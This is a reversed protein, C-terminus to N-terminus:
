STPKVCLARMSIHADDCAESSRPPNADFYYVNHRTAPHGADNTIQEEPGIKRQQNPLGGYCSPEGTVIDSTWVDGTTLIIPARLNFNAGPDKPQGPRALLDTLEDLQPLRWGPGLKQCYAVAANRTLDRTGSDLKKWALHRASDTWVSSDGLLNKIGDQFGPVTLYLAPLGLVGVVLVGLGIKNATEVGVLGAFERRSRTEPVAHWGRTPM